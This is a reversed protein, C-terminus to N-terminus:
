ADFSTRADELEMWGGRGNFVEALDAFYKEYMPAVAELSYQMGRERCKVSDISFRKLVADRFDRLTCCHFGDASSVTHPLGLSHFRFTM